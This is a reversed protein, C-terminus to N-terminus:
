PTHIGNAKSSLDAISRESFGGGAGSNPDTHCSYCAFDLTVWNATALSGDQNFMNDKTLGPSTNIAFLHTRVDGEFMHASRASRTARPMHCDVCTPRGALNRHSNNAAQAPHCSECTTAIGGAAANGYLVGVHPDHCDNCSLEDHPSALLENYQEHHRIFGGSAPIQQPDGRVHCRGCLAVGADVTIDSASQSAVHDAGPGHCEECTIGTEEWTGAIGILGDQHVGGNDSFSQWGTTHCGGCDYSRRETDSSSYEVWEGPLGSGLDARPLNYQTNANDMADTMVWGSDVTVFRAKWGYGGIVYAIDDWQNRSTGPPPSPVESHPYEPPQGDVVENLKYPHGSALMQNHYQLHCNRCTQSGVYGRASQAIVAFIGDSEDAATQGADDTAVVRVMAGFVNASPATWSYSSGSVGTAIVSANGGVVYSVDVGTVQNDDSATWTIEVSSGPQIAEGGNPATLQITPPDDEEPGIIDDEDDECAVGLGIVALATVGWYLRRGAIM